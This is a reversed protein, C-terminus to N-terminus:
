YNHDDNKNDDKDNENVIWWYYVYIEGNKIDYMLIQLVEIYKCCEYM